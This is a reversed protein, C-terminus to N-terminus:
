EGRGRKKGELVHLAWSNGHSYGVAYAVYLLAVFAAGGMIVEFWTLRELAVSYLLTSM